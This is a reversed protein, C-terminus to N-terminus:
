PPQLRFEVRREGAVYHTVKPLPLGRQAEAQKHILHLYLGM